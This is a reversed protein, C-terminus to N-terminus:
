EWLDNLLHKTATVTSAYGSGGFLWLIGPRM